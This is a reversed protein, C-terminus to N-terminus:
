KVGSQPIDAADLVDNVIPLIEQFTFSIMSILNKTGYDSFLSGFDVTSMTGSEPVVYRLAEWYAKSM